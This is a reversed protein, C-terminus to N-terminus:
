KAAKKRGYGLLGLLGFGLLCMTAPEPVGFTLTTPVLTFGQREAGLMFTLSNVDLPDTLGVNYTGAQSINYDYTIFMARKSTDFMPGDLSMILVGNPPVTMMQATFDGWTVPDFGANYPYFAAKTNITLGYKFLDTPQANLINSPLIAPGGAQNTFTVDFSASNVMEAFGQGWYELTFSGTGLPLQGTPGVITVSAGFATGFFLGVILLAIAFKKM